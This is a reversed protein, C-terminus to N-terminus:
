PAQGFTTIGMVPTDFTIPGSLIVGEAPPPPSALGIRCTITLTIGNLVQGNDFQFTVKLALQGGEGRPNAVGFSIFSVVSNAVWKGSAVGNTANPPLSTQISWIGKANVGGQNDFTGSGFITIFDGMFTGTSSKTAVSFYLAWEGNQSNASHVLLGSGAAVMLTATICVLVTRRIFTSKEL